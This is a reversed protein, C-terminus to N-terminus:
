GGKEMAALIARQKKARELKEFTGDDKKIIQLKELELVTSEVSYKNGLGSLNMARIMSRMILAIFLVFIAGSVNSPKRGEPSVSGSRNEADHLGERHGREARYSNLREPGSYESRYVLLFRGMRNEAASAANDKAVTM